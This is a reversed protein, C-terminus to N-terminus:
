ASRPLIAINGANFEKVVGALAYVESDTALRSPIPENYYGPQTASLSTSFGAAGAALAERVVQRRREIEDTTAGRENAAGGMVCRRVGSHGGSGTFNIGLKGDLSDIYEPYTEWDWPLGAELAPLDVGEVAAFTKALWDRDEPGCPAVTYGCNGGVVTTVGHF